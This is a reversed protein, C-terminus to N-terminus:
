RGRLEARLLELDADLAAIAAALEDRLQVRIEDVRRALFAEQEATRQDVLAAIRAMLPHAIPRAVRRAVQKAKALNTSPVPMQEPTLPLDLKELVRDLSADTV